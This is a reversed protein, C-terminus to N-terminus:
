FDIELGFGPKDSLTILGGKQEFGGKIFSFEEIMRYSDLDAYSINGQAAVLAAGAAIGIRTEGMCGVMCPIGAAEAIANIRLAPYLGGSKMLKINIIDCAEAKVARLADHPNHISEDMMLDQSIHDRVYKLSDFNWHRLPQEIEDVHYAEMKKMVQIAEKVGWGQNADLRLSVDYGVAERIKRVAELDDKSNRGVKIKLISFGEDVYKKALKAMEDPTDIGITMDSQVSSENGGLLKYVPQGTKKGLIDYLAIDVAAKGSSKGLIYADMVRHIREIALPDEGILLPRIEDFFQTINDISNGTVLGLPSAEGYGTIGEDTEIKLIIVSDHPNGKQLAIEFKVKDTTPAKKYQINTIKM